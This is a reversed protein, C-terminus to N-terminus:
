VLGREQAERVAAELDHWSFNEAARVLARAERKRTPIVASMYEDPDSKAL